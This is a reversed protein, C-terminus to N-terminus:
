TQKQCEKEKEEQTLTLIEPKGETILITNEYHASFSGDETLVTWGNDEDFFVDPAGANIMPEVALTMGSKLKPGLGRVRCNPIEPPEHLRRGIGHGVMEYVVGYGFSEAYEAIANSIQYLHNGARAFRIGRFFSERTRQILLKLEPDTDGVPYTRAADSHWGEYILGLDLSVIDGEDLYHDADPIGHVVEDNVSVCTAAPYGEYNLFNPTCGLKRITQEAIEDLEKTTVGPRVAAKLEEHVVALRKGAERMLAAEGPNKISIHERM